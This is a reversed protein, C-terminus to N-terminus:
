YDWEQQKVMNEKEKARRKREERYTDQKVKPIKAKKTIKKFHPEEDDWYDEYDLFTQNYNTM